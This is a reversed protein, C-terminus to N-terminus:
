NKILSFNIPLFILRPVATVRIRIATVIVKVRAITRARLRKLSLTLMM